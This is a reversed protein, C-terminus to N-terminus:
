RASQAVTLNRTHILFTDGSVFGQVKAVGHTISLITAYKDGRMWRDTAPHLMVYDGNKM